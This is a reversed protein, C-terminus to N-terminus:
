PPATATTTRHPRHAIPRRTALHPHPCHTADQHRSTGDTAKRSELHYPRDLTEELRALSGHPAAKIAKALEDIRQALDFPFESWDIECAARAVKVKSPGGETIVKDYQGASENIDPFTGKLELLMNELLYNEIERGNTIWCIGEVAECEGRVREKASRLKEGKKKRDSDMIVAFDRCVSLCKVLDAEVDEFGHQSLIKGGYFLITYDIGERLDPHKTNLWHNLYIRDSPGEVWIVYRAQILESASHGLDRIAAFKDQNSQVLKTESVGAREKLHLIDADVADLCAASHTAIVFQAESNEDIYQLVRKQARPHLHLEPEDILCLKGPFGFSALGVMLLQEIGTGLSDLSREIGDITVYIASKDHSVAVEVNVFV